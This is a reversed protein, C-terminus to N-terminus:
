IQHEYNWQFNTVLGVNTNIFNINEFFDNKFDPKFVIVKKLVYPKEYLVFKKAKSIYLDQKIKSLNKLSNKFFFIDLIYYKENFFNPPIECTYTYIGNQVSSSFKGNIIPSSVLLINNQIDSIRIMPDFTNEDNNIKKIQVKIFFSKNTQFKKEGEQFFDMKLVQIDKSTPFSSLDTISSNYNSFKIEEASLDLSNEMYNTIISNDESMNQLIGKELLLYKDLNELEAMNHSVFVMTKKSSILKALIKKTKNIFKADGVSFVEDFLYVDFDLHAMISFALRLYMGNSYNKVPENIFNKIGSFDVIQDYKENIEKKNFGLIQGNLYVNEKGNLEPHFGAGIDLISGIRGRIKINGTTPKIVGALIKLLTSKGSGNLGLIGISEGKKIEFSVDKLAWHEHVKRGNEDFRGQRLAFVKSLNQVEIANEPKM